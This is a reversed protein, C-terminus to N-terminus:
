KKIGDLRIEHAKDFPHNKIDCMICRQSRLYYLPLTVNRPPCLLFNIKQSLFYRIKEKILKNKIMFIRNESPPAAMLNSVKRKM